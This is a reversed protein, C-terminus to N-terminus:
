AGDAVRLAESLWDGDGRKDRNRGVREWLKGVERGPRRRKRALPRPEGTLVQVAALALSEAILVAGTREKQLEPEFATVMVRRYTADDSALMLEALGEEGYLWLDEAIDERAAM